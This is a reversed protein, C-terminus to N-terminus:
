SASVIFSLLVFSHFLHSLSIHRNSHLSGRREIAFAFTCPPRLQKFQEKFIEHQAQRILMVHRNLNDIRARDAVPSVCVFSMCMFRTFTRGRAGRYPEIPHSDKCHRQVGHQVSETGSMGPAASASYGGVGNSSSRLRKHMLALDLDAQAIPDIEASEYFAAGNHAM